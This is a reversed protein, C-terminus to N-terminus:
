RSIITVSDGVRLQTGAAPSQRKVKAIGFNSSLQNTDVVVRLGISELVTKAAAITEGIINPMEIIEPGKSIELVANGGEPLPTQDIVLAVALGQAIENDFVESEKLTLSLGALLLRAEDAPLGAVEPLPGLSVLIDITSGQNLISGVEASLGVVQGKPNPGFYQKLEGPTFGAETLLSAVEQTGLGAVEPVTIQKPGLSIFVTVTSNKFVRAGAQPDTRTVFGAKTDASNEEAQEVAVGLPLLAEIAAELSRGSLDPIAALGGPGSSFWWGSGAGGFLAFLTALILWFRSRKNSRRLRQANNSELGTSQPPTTELVETAGAAPVFDSDFNIRATKDIDQLSTTLGRELDKRARAIVPLLTAASAPRDAPNRATAWLVIEDLLEPVKPNVTSPAPINDNAHQYAVQVAQEGRYPQSGTLMEFIMVGLSYVDSRADAQGRLVLEPSLYAVTGVVSGTQTHQSIARALGFDGLKVNGGDSLFVNEPKLDRHLIGALHAAALGSTLPEIIELAKNPELAGFDNLADRLTIGPVYEMVLFIVEGDTGQDFVNVLNSHSLKAAVKAERRFKEVFSKDKALHPHIVKLAVERELVNDHALYVSAMGGSAVLSKVLYRSAIVQGSLNAM